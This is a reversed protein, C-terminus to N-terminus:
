GAPLSATVLPEIAERPHPILIAGTAASQAIGARPNNADTWVVLVMGCDLAAAAKQVIAQAAEDITSWREGPWDRVRQMTDLVAQLEVRSQRLAHEARTRRLSISATILAVTAFLAVVGAAVVASVHLAM